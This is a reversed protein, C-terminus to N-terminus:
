EGNGEGFEEYAEIEIEIAILRMNRERYASKEAETGCHADKLFERIRQAEEKLGQIYM